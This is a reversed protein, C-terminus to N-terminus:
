VKVEKILVADGWGGFILRELDGLRFRSMGDDGWRQGWSNKMRYYPPSGDEPDLDIGNIVYEHGGRMATSYDVRTYLHEGKGRPVPTDMSQYWNSGVLIPGVELITARLEQATANWNGIWEFSSIEGRALLEDCASQASTGKLMSTDPTGYYRASAALYLDRAWKEDLGRVKTPADARRHTFANGVCTGTNGQNLFLIQAWMRRIRASSAIRVPHLAMARPTQPDLVRGLGGYEPEM